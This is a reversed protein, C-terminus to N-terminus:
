GAKLQSCASRLDDLNIHSPAFDNTGVWDLSVAAYLEDTQKRFWDNLVQQRGYGWTVITDGQSGKGQGLIMHGGEIPSNGVLRWAEKASFQDQANAPLQVGIGTGGFLFNAKAVHDDNTPDVSVVCDIKHGGVGVTRWYEYGETAVTGQDTPNNGDADTKSADFGTCESYAKLVDDLSLMVIPGSHATWSMIQHAIYAWFCDGYQDNGFMGWDNAAIKYEWYVKRPAPPLPPAGARLFDSLKLVNPHPQFDQKGLKYRV